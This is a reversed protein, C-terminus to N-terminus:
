TQPAFDRWPTVRNKERGRFNNKPFNTGKPWQHVNASCVLCLFLTYHWVVYLVVFLDLFGLSCFSHFLSIKKSIVALLFIIITHFIM